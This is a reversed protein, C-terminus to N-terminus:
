GVSSVTIRLMQKRPMAEAQRLAWRTRTRPAAPVIDGLATHLWLLGGDRGYTPDPPQFVLKGINLGM